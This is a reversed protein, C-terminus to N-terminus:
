SIELIAGQFSWTTASDLSDMSMARPTEGATIDASFSHTRQKGDASTAASSDLTLGTLNIGTGGAPDQLSRGIGLLKTGATVNASLDHPAGAKFGFVSNLVSISPVSGDSKSILYARRSRGSWYMTGPDFLQASFAFDGGASVDYTSGYLLRLRYDEQEDDLAFVQSGPNGNLTTTLPFPSNAVNHGFTGYGYLVLLIQGPVAAIGNYNTNNPGQVLSTSNYAEIQTITIDVAGGPISTALSEATIPSNVGDNGKVEITVDTGQEDETITLTAGTEDPIPVDDSQWVDGFTLVGTPTSWLGPIRTLTDGLGTTGSIQPLGSNNVAGFNYVGNRLVGATVGTYTDAYPSPSPIVLDGLSKADPVNPNIDIEVENGTAQLVLALYQVAPLAFVETNGESDTVLWDPVDGIDLVTDVAAPSGNIRYVPANITATGGAASSSYNGAGNYTAFNALDAQATDGKFLLGTPASNATIVVLAAFGRARRTSQIGFSARGRGVTFDLM